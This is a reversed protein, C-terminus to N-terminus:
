GRTIVPIIRTWTQVVLCVFIFVFFSYRSNQIKKKFFLYIFFFGLTAAPFLTGICLWFPKKELRWTNSCAVSVHCKVDRKPYRWTRTQWSRCATKFVIVYPRVNKTQLEDLAQWATVLSAEGQWTMVVIRIWVYNQTWIIWFELAIKLEFPVFFCESAKFISLFNKM